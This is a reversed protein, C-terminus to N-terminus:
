VVMKNRVHESAYKLAQCSQRSVVDLVDKKYSSLEISACHLARGNQEVAM